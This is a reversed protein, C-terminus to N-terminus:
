GLPETARPLSAVYAIVGPLAREYSFTLRASDLLKSSWFSLGDAPSAQAPSDRLVGDTGWDVLVM